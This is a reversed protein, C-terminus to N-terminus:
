TAPTLTRLTFFFTAGQNLASQAWIRGGHKRIIREVTALGIGTGEFDALTHLRQFVGFLKDAYRMDFGVGNDRLEIVQEGNLEIQSIGIIAPNRQRTFKLANSLLNLLAQSLLGRDCAVNGLKGIQWEIHRGLCDTQLLEVSSDVLTNLLTSELSLPARGVQSLHLLDDVLSGMRKAGQAISDLYRRAEPPLPEGFEEVLIRTFGTIQRIPARLDHAVSYSFAELDANAAALKANSCMLEDALLRVDHEAQTAAEMLDHEHTVKALSTLRSFADQISQQERMRNTCGKRM